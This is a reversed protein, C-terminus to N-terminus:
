RVPGHASACVSEIRGDQAVVIACKLDYITVDDQM